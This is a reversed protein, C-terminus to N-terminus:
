KSLQELYPRAREDGNVAAKKFWDLAAAKDGAVGCNGRLYCMGLNLMATTNGAAAAKAWWAGAQAEDKVGDVGKRYLVGIENMAMDSNGEAGKRYWAMAKALDKPHGAHDITYLKGILAMADPDGSSGDPQPEAARRALSWAREYDKKLLVEWGLLAMARHYGGASARELWQAGKDADQPLGALGRAYLYYMTVMASADGAAAAPTALERALVYNRGEKTLGAYALAAAAGQAGAHNTQAARRFLTQAKDFDRAVGAGTEYRRGLAYISAPDGKDAAALLRRVEDAERKRLAAAEAEAAAAKAVERAQAAASLRPESLTVDIRKLAGEGMKLEQEFVREHSADVKLVASIKVVGPKVQIDLPCEGKFVGNVSVEAGADAGDCAIRLYSENAAVLSGVSLAASCLLALRAIGIIRTM